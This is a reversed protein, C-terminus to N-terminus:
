LSYKSYRCSVGIGAAKGANAWNISKGEIKLGDSGGATADLSGNGKITVSANEAVSLGACVWGAACLLDYKVVYDEYTFGSKLVNEGELTLTVDGGQIDFACANKKEANAGDHKGSVDINVGNLTITHTGGMVTITNTTATTSGTQTITYDGDYEVLASEGQTYGDASIVISGDALDLQGNTTTEITNGGDGAQPTPETVEEPKGVAETDESVTMIEGEALATAPLLSLTMVLSLLSALIRRKM